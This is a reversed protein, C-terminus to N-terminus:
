ISSLTLIPLSVISTAGTRTPLPATVPAPATTVLSMGGSDSATPTGATTFFFSPLAHPGPTGTSNRPDCPDHTSFEQIAGTSDRPIRRQIGPTARMGAQAFRLM